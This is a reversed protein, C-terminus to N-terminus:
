LLEKHHPRVYKNKCTSKHTEMEALHKEAHFIDQFGEKKLLIDLSTLALNQHNKQANMINQFYLEITMDSYTELECSLYVSFNSGNNSPYTSRGMKRFLAPYEQRLTFQWQTEIEVIKQIKNLINTYSKLPSILNDMRAYKETILNRGQSEAKSLDNLYSKLAEQSWVAFLSGRIKRFKDPMTQCTAPAQSKVRQFMRWESNLINSILENKDDSDLTENQM